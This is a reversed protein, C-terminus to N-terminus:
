LLTRSFSTAAERAYVCDEGRWVQLADREDSLALARRVAAHDDLHECAITLSAIGEKIVRIEYALM